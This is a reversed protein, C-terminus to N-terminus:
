LVSAMLGSQDPDSGDLIGGTGPVGAAVTITFAPLDDVRGSADTVRIIIGPYVGEVAPVGALEATAPDVDLGAALPAGASSFTRAGRGGYAEPTFSYPVGVTASVVPLGYIALLPPSRYPGHHLRARLYM